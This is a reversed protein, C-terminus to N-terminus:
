LYISRYLLNTDIYFLTEFSEFPVEMFAQSEYHGLLWSENQANQVTILFCSIPLSIAGESEGGEDCSLVQFKQVSRSAATTHM